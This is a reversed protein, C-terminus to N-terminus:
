HQMERVARGPDQVGEQIGEAEASRWPPLAGEMNEQSDARQGDGVSPWSHGPPLSASSEPAKYPGRQWALAGM